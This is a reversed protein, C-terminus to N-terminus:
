HAPLDAHEILELYLRRRWRPLELIERESWHYRSALAHVDEYLADLTGPAITCADCAVTQELGCQPCATLMENALEPSLSELADEVARTTNDDAITGSAEEWGLTCRQVLRQLAAAPALTAIAAQDAGTPARLRVQREGLRLEVFPFGEGAPKVPIQSRQVGLDFRTGCRACHANVWFQDGELEALLHLLLVQRDAVCLQAMRERDAPEGGCADVAQALIDTVCDPWSGGAALREALRQEITGTLERLVAHRQLRGDRLIGGPLVIDM